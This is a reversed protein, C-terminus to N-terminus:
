IEGKLWRYIYGSQLRTMDISRGRDKIYDTLKHRYELLMTREPIVSLAVVFPGSAVGIFSHCRQILGFLNSLTPVCNRVHNTVFPFKINVPNHFVHEFHCEIPIKGAEIIENWIQKAIIDHCNVSDPLATGQFHVAVLPSEQRAIYPLATIPEIGLEAICCWEAKTHGSGESMPFNLSFVMDHVDSDKDPYSETFYLEQGSELYIDFYVDPYLKILQYYLPMFMLTDGLGHGFRILISMGPKLYEVLKKNTYDTIM